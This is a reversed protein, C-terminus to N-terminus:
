WCSPVVGCKSSRDARTSTPKRDHRKKKTKIRLSRMIPVMVENNFSYVVLEHRCPDPSVDNGDGIASEDEQEQATRNFWSSAFWNDDSSDDSSVIQALPDVYEREVRAWDCVADKCEM